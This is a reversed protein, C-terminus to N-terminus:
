PSEVIEVTDVYDKIGQQYGNYYGVLYGVTMYLVSLIVLMVFVPVKKLYSM